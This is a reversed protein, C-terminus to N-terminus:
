AVLFGIKGDGYRDISVDFYMQKGPNTFIAQEVDSLEARVCTRSYRLHATDKSMFVKSLINMVENLSDKVMGSLEGAAAAEKAAPPPIMVMAAGMYVGLPLDCVVLAVSHGDDDIFVGILPDPSILDAKCDVVKLGSLLLDLVSRLDVIKPTHFSM